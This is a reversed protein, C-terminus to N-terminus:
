SLLLVFVRVLASKFVAKSTPSTIRLWFDISRGSAESTKLDGRDIGQLCTTLTDSLCGERGGKRGQDEKIWGERWGEM